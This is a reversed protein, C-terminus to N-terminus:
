MHCGGTGSPPRVELLRQHFSRLDHFRRIASVSELRGWLPRVSASFSAAKSRKHLLSFYVLKKYRTTIKGWSPPFKIYGVINKKLVKERNEQM